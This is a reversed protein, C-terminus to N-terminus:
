RMFDALDASSIAGHIARSDNMMKGITYTATQNQPVPDLKAAGVQGQFAHSRDQMQEISFAHGDKEYRQSTNMNQHQETRGQSHSQSTQLPAAPTRRATQNALVASVPTDPLRSSENRASMTRTPSPRVKTSVAELNSILFDLDDILIDFKQKDRVAWVTSRRSTFTERNRSSLFSLFRKNRRPESSSPQVGRSKRPALQYKDKLLQANGFIGAIGQLSSEILHGEKSGKLHLEDKEHEAHGLTALGTGEGWSNLRSKLLALKLCALNYDYEYTKSLEFYEMFEVCTTFLSALAVTGLALGIAEAM